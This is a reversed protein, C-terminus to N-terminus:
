DMLQHDVFILCRQRFSVGYSVKIQAGAGDGSRIVGLMRNGASLLVDQLEDDVLLRVGHRVSSEVRIVHGKYSVSWSKM